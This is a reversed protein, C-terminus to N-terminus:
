FPGVSFITTRLIAEINASAIILIDFSSDILARKTYFLPKFNSAAVEDALLEHVRAESGATCKAKPKRTESEVQLGLSM